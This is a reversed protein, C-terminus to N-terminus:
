AQAGQQRAGASRETERAPSATVAGISWCLWRGRNGLGVWGTAAMSEKVVARGTSHQGHVYFIHELYAGPARSQAQTSGARQPM